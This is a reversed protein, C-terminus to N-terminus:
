SVQRTLCMRDLGPSRVSGGLGGSTREVAVLFHPLFLEEVPTITLDSNLEIWPKTIRLATSYVYFQGGEGGGGIQQEIIYRANLGISSFTSYM